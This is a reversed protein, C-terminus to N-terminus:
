MLAQGIIQVRYYFFVRINNCIHKNYLFRWRKYAYGAILQIEEAESRYIKVLVNHRYEKLIKRM